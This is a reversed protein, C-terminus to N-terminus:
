NSYCLYIINWCPVARSGDSLMVHLPTKDDYVDGDYDVM